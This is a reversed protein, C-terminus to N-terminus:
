ERYEDPTIGTIRKFVYSFCQESEYGLQKAIDAVTKGDSSLLMKKSLLIRRLELYDKFSKGSHHSLLDCFYAESMNMQTAFHDSINPHCGSCCGNAIYDDIMQIIASMVDEDADHRTIFQRAYFRRCYNLVLEILNSVIVHTMDDVGWKLERSIANLCNTLVENECKSIHLAEDDNYRFFSYDRLHMGMFTGCFLNPHFVLMTGECKNEITDLNLKTEPSRFLVTGDSYDYAKRGYRYECHPFHRLVVSYGDISLQHDAPANGLDIVSVLPHLTREHFMKNCSCVTICDNDKLM